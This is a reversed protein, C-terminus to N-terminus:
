FRVWTFTVVREEGVPPLNAELEQEPWPGHVPLCLAMGTAIILHTNIAEWEALAKMRNVERDLRRQEEKRVYDSREGREANENM